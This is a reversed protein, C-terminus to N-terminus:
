AALADDPEVPALAPAAANPAAHKSLGHPTKEWHSPKTVLQVLARWAAISHLVWYFPLLLSFLALGYHRRRVAAIASCAIMLGNGVVLNIAAVHELPSGSVGLDPPNGSALSWALYLWLIPAALFALPTGAVLLVLTATAHPGAARMFRLPHRLHVLATQMYGKIWRTRQKIWPWTRCCAEEYTTSDLTLVRYGKAAARLGLDADETVNHPDWAGLGRLAETRFHNSTGGLPIPLRLGALGELMLDFWHSYELTFFRTLANENWNHYNLRGQVCVLEPGAARFMAVAKRLQDPEPRDEADYIVLFEGHAFHLGVNCAKPKTRPQGDPVVVIRISGPMGAHMAASITAGDVEELLLLVELRDRPYDLEALHRVLDGIVNAEGFAPVLVTYVPLEDDPIAAAAAVPRRRRVHQRVLGTLVATAKFAVLGGFSLNLAAFLWLPGWSPHYGDVVAYTVLAALIVLAQRRTVVRSASDQPAREALSSAASRTMEAGYARLVAARLDWETTARFIVEGDWGTLTRIDDALGADPRIASAILLHDHGVGVPVWPLRALEEGTLGLGAVVDRDPPNRWLDIFPVGWAESLARYVDIRRVLGRAILLSGLLAGTRQSEALAVDLDEQRLAGRAVLEEGLRPAPQPRGLRAILEARAEARAFPGSRAHLRAVDVARADAPPPVIRPTWPRPEPEARPTPPAAPTTARHPAWEGEAEVVRARRAFAGVGVAAAVFALLGFASPGRRAM